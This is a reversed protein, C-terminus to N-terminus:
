HKFCIIRGTDTSVLLSHNAIALGHVKGDVDAQWVQKGDTSRYAMVKNEAGAFLHEGACILTNLAGVDQKWMFCAQAETALDKNKISLDLKTQNLTHTEDNTQDKLKKLRANITGLQKNNAAIRTQLAMYRGRDLAILEKASCFWAMGGKIVMCTATPFTAIQDRTDANFGRLEGGSSHTQGVGHVLKNEPTLLAFTGGQGANGFGGMLKGTAVDCVVPRQRGQPMYLRTASALMPAQATLVQHETKYIVTGDDAKVACIYSPAWPLLSLTFYAANNQVLVGSRCPWQSILKGNFAILRNDDVGRYKWVPTGTRAEVCYVYGDDSGFYTKGDFLTPAIRVPGDTRFQWVEEGTGLDLCHVSDDVSSGFYVRDQASTVYFAPDFDRMSRQDALAAFADWKAPGAWARQPPAPSVYQWTRNLPLSLSTDTTGSRQNDHRYTPWDQALTQVTLSAIILIITKKM